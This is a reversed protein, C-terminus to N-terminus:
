LTEAEKELYKRALDLTYLGSNIELRDENHASWEHLDRSIDSLIQLSNKLYAKTYLSKMSM